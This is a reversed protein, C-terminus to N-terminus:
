WGPFAWFNFVAKGGAFGSCVVMVAMVANVAWGGILVVCLLARAPVRDSLFTQRRLIYAGHYMKFKLSTRASSIFFM